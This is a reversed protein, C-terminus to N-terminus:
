KQTANMEKTLEEFLDKQNVIEPILNHLTKKFDLTKKAIDLAQSYLIKYYLARVQPLTYKGIKGAFYNTGFEYDIFVDDSSSNPHHSLLKILERYVTQHMKLEEASKKNDRADNIYTTIGDVLTKYNLISLMGKTKWKLMSDIETYNNFQLGIDDATISLKNINVDIKNDKGQIDFSIITEINKPININHPIYQKPNKLFPELIYQFSNAKDSQMLALGVDRLQEIKSDFFGECPKSNSQQNFKISINGEKLNAISKYYTNTDVSESSDSYTWKNTKVEINSLIDTINPTKSTTVLDVDLQHTVFYPSLPGYILSLPSLKKGKVVKDIQATSIIHYHGPINNMIDDISKYYPMGPVSLNFSLNGSFLLNQDTLDTVKIHEVHFAISKVMNILEFANGKRIDESLLLKFFSLSIPCYIHYYYSGNIQSGFGSELPKAMATSEGTYSIYFSQKKIDYGINLPAKHTIRGDLDDEVVDHIKLGLKFPFGELTANSFMIYYSTNNSANLIHQPEKSYSQVINHINYMVYLWFAGYFLCLFAIVIGLSYVLNKKIQVM